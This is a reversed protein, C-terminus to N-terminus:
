SGSKKRLANAHDKANASEAQKGAVRYAEAIADFVAPNDPQTKALGELQTIAESANGSALATRALGIQADTSNQDVLTAAEFQDQAAKVDKLALYVNGLLIRAPLQGPLSKLSRELADRAGAFNGTKELAQGLEYAATPDDPRV